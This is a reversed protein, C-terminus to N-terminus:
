CFSMNFDSVKTIQINEGVVLCLKYKLISWFFILILYQISKKSLKLILLLLIKRKMVITIHIQTNGTDSNRNFLVIYQCYTETLAFNVIFLLNFQMNFPCYIKMNSMVSIYFTLSGKNFTVLYQNKKCMLQVINIRKRAQSSVKM